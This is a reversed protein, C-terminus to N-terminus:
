RKTEAVLVTPPEEPEMQASDVPAIHAVLRARKEPAADANGISGDISEGHPRRGSAVSASAASSSSSSSWVSSSSSSSSSSSALPSSATLLDTSNARKRPPGFGTRSLPMGMSGLSSGGGGGGGGGGGFLGGAGGGGGVGGSGGGGQQQLLQQQQQLLQQQHLLQQQQHQRQDEFAERDLQANFTTTSGWLRNLSSRLATKADFFDEKKQLTGSPDSVGVVAGGAGGGGGGGGASFAESEDLLRAGSSSSSSSSASTAGGGTFFVKTSEFTFSPPLLGHLAPPVNKLIKERSAHAQQSERPAPVGPGRGGAATSATTSALPVTAGHEHYDLEAPIPLVGHELEADNSTLRERVLRQLKQPNLRHQRFAVALASDLHELSCDGDANTFAAFKACSQGVSEIFGAAADALVDLAAADCQKFGARSAIRCVAVVLMQKAYTESDTM